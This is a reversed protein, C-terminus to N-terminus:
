HPCSGSLCQYQSCCLTGATNCCTRRQYQRIGGGCCGFNQWPQCVSYTCAAAEAPKPQGTFLVLAMTVVLLALLVIRIKSPPNM